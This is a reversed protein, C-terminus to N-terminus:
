IYSFLNKGVPPCVKQEHALTLNLIQSAALETNTQHLINSWYLLLVM